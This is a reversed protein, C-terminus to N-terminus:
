EICRPFRDRRPNMCRVRQRRERGRTQGAQYARSTKAASSSCNARASLGTAALLLITMPAMPMPLGSLRPRPWRRSAGALVADLVDGDAVHIAAVAVPGHVLDLLGAVAELFRYTFDFGVLVEALQEVALVDVGDDDGRGVVPVGQDGDVGHALALVDVALLRQRQGDGLALGHDLDGLLGAAIKWVPLWCRESPRKRRAQSSTRLPRM